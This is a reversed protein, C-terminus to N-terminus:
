EGEDIVKWVWTAKKAPKLKYGLAQMIKREEEAWQRVWPGWSMSHQMVAPLQLEFHSADMGNLKYAHLEGDKEFLFHLTKSLNGNELKFLDQRIFQLKATDVVKNGEDDVLFTDFYTFAESDNNILNYNLLIFDVTVGSEILKEIIEKYKSSKIEGEFGQYYLYVAELFSGPDIEKDDAEIWSIFGLAHTLEHIFFAKFDVRENSVEDGYAFEIEKTFNVIVCADYEWDNESGAFLINRALQTHYIGPIIIETGHHSKAKAFYDADPDITSKVEIRVNADHDLWSFVLATAEEVAKQAEPRIHFGEGPKDTYVIEFKVDAFVSITFVCLFAILVVILKSM